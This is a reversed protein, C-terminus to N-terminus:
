LFAAVTSVLRRRIKVRWKGFNESWDSDKEGPHYEKNEKPQIQRKEM